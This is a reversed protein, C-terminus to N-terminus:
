VKTVAGGDIRMSSGTIRRAEDSVLFMVLDTVDQAELWPFPLIQVAAFSDRVGELTGDTEGAPDFLDVTARNEIMGTRASTPLVANVRINFAGLENALAKTLGIVGHKAAVYHALHPIGIEGATSSTLVISGGNENRKLHPIAAQATFFVGGLDTEIVENWAEESIDEAACPTMVGANALVIDLRGLEAVGADMAARVGARDRVDVKTAIIRRDLWEVLGVTEQLDAETALPYPVSPLDACVDIAIIDAGERALAVAHSRGQGRAAGSIFAVKGDYKGM